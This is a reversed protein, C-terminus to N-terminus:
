QKKGWKWRSVTKNTDVNEVWAQGDQLSEKKAEKNAATLSMFGLSGPYVVYGNRPARPNRNGKGAMKRGTIKVVGNRQKTISVFAMNRLTTSKGKVKRPNSKVTRYARKLSRGRGSGAERQRGYEDKLRSLSFRGNRAM